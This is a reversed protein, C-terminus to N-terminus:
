LTSEGEVQHNHEYLHLLKGEMNAFVMTTRM